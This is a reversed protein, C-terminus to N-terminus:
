PRRGRQFAESQKLSERTARVCEGSRVFLMDDDDDDDDGDNDDDDDDDDDNNEDDHDHHEDGEDEDFDAIISM